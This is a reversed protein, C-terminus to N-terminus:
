KIDQQNIEFLCETRDPRKTFSGKILKRFWNDPNKIDKLIKFNTDITEVQMINIACPCCKFNRPTTTSSKAVFNMYTNPQLVSLLTDDFQIYKTKIQLNTNNSIYFDVSGRQQCKMSALLIILVLLLYVSLKRM